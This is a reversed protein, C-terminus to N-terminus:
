ILAIFIFGALYGLGYLALGLKWGEFHKDGIRISKLKLAVDWINSITVYLFLLSLLTALEFCSFQFDSELLTCVSNILTMAISEEDISVKTKFAIGSMFGAYFGNKLVKIYQNERKKSRRRRNM